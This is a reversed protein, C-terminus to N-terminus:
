PSFRGRRKLSKLTRAKLTMQMPRMALAKSAVQFLPVPEAVGKLQAEGVGTIRVGGTRNANM